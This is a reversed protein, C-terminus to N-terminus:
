SSASASVVVAQNSPPHSFSESDVSLRAQPEELRLPSPSPGHSLSVCQCAYAEPTV